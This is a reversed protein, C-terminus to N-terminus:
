LYKINWTSKKSSMNFRPMIIWICVFLLIFVFNILVNKKIMVLSVTSIKINGTEEEQLEHRKMLFWFQEFKVSCIPIYLLGTNIIINEYSDNEEAFILFFFFILSDFKVGDFSQLSELLPSTKM